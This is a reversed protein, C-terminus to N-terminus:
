RCRYRVFDRGYTIDTLRSGDESLSLASLIAM